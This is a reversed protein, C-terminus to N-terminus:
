TKKQEIHSNIDYIYPNEKLTEILQSYSFEIKNNFKKYVEKIAKYDDNEDLTLRYKSNNQNDEFSGLKFKDKNTTHIYTTVHEIEFTTTANKFAKELTDFSFVEVDLGRPFTRNICNSLYDFDSNEFKEIINSLIQSDMFPCDSTLRVITDGSKAGFKIASEYYRSLVNNTDGEYYKVNKQKALEVIPTQTGDNITAIIINDKFKSIRDIMVGLASQGCLPLMVKKPLRTSTMRAQVIIYLNKSM